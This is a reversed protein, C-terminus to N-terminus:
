VYEWKTIFRQGNPLASLECVIARTVNGVKSIGTIKLIDDVASYQLTVTDNGGMGSISLTTQEPYSWINTSANYSTGALAYAIGADTLYYAKVSDIARICLQNKYFVSLSYAGLMLTLAAAIVMATIIVFGKRERHRM